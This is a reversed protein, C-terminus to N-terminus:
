VVRPELHGVKEYLAALSAGLAGRGAAQAAAHLSPRLGVAVVTMLEVVTSFALERTYGREAETEFLGDLWEANLARGLALRAMVSVPADREFRQLVPEFASMAQARVGAGGGEAPAARVVGAM